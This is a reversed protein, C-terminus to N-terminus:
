GEQTQPHQVYEQPSVQGLTADMLVPAATCLYDWIPELACLLSSLILWPTLM